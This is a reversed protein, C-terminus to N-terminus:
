STGKEFIEQWIENTEMQREGFSIRDLDALVIDRYRDVVMAVIGSHMKRVSGQAKAAWFRAKEVDWRATKKFYQELEASDGRYWLKNRIVDAIFTHPEIIVIERDRAPEIRFIRKIFEQLRNMRIVEQFDQEPIPDM